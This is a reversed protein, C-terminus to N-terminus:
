LEVETTLFPLNECFGGVFIGNGVPVDMAGVASTAVRLSLHGILDDPMSPPTVQHRNNFQLPEAAAAMQIRSYQAVTRVREVADDGTVRRGTQTTQLM